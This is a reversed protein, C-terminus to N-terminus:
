QKYIVYKEGIHLVSKKTLKNWKLFDDVSVGYKKAIEYPTDGRQVTHSITKGGGGSKEPANGSVYVVYQKGRALQAGARIGNWKRFDEEKVGYQEAISHTTDNREVTHIVKGPDRQDEQERNTTAAAPEPKSKAAAGEAPRIKIEQGINLTSRRTLNNWKLLDSLPVGYKDAVGGLTDGRKIVHVTSAGAPVEQQAEPVPKPEPAPAPESEREPEPAPAPEPASAAEPVPAPAVPSAEPEPAPAPPTPAAAPESGQITIKQGIRLTSKTTLKNWKLLDSLGVKYKAAIGGLTDGRQVSHIITEGPIGEGETSEAPAGPVPAPPVAPLELAVEEVPAEAVQVPDGAQAAFELGRARWEALAAVASAEIRRGADSLSQAEDMLRRVENLLWDGREFTDDSGSSSTLYFAQYEKCRALTDSLPEIFPEGRLQEMVALQRILRTLHAITSAAVPRPLDGAHWQQEIRPLTRILTFFQEREKLMGKNGPVAAVALRVENGIADAIDKRQVLQSALKIAQARAAQEFFKGGRGTLYVPRQTANIQLDGNDQATIAVSNNYQDFAEVRMADGPQLVVSQDAGESWLALYWDAGSTFLYNTIEAKLPLSGAFRMPGLRYTLANLQNFVRSLGNDGYVASANFGVEAYGQAWARFISKLLSPQDGSEATADLMAYLTWDEFGAHEAMRHVAEVTWGAQGNASVAVSRVVNGLGKKMMADFQDVDRAAMTLPTACGATRLAQIISALVPVSDGAYVEWRAVGDCLEAALQAVHEAPDPVATADVYPVIQFGADLYRKARELAGEQTMDVRLTSLPIGKLARLVEPSDGAQVGFLPLHYEGATRRVRSFTQRLEQAGEPVDISVQLSFFGTREPLNKLAFWYPRGAAFSLEGEDFRAAQEKSETEVTGSLRATGSFDPVVEVVLPEDVYSYPLPQDPSVALQSASLSLLLLAAAANM